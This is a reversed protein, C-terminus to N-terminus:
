SKRQWLWIRRVSTKEDEFFNKDKMM